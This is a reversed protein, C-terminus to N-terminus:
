KVLFNYISIDYELDTKGKQLFPYTGNCKEVSSQGTEALERYKKKMSSLKCNDAVRQLAEASLPHGLHEAIRRIQGSTDQM